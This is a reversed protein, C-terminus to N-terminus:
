CFAISVLYPHYSFCNLICGWEVYREVNFIHLNWMLSVTQMGTYHVCVLCPTCSTVKNTLNVNAGHQILKTVIGVSGKRTARMLATEEDQVSNLLLSLTEM